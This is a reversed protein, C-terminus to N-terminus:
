PSRILLNAYAGVTAAGTTDWSAGARFTLWVNLTSGAVMTPAKVQGHADVQEQPPSSQWAVTRAVGDWAAITPWRQEIWLWRQSPPHQDASQTIPDPPLDTAVPGITTVLGMVMPVGMVNPMTFNLSTTGAFWWAFRARTLTQGAALSALLWHKQATSWGQSALSDRTWSFSAM